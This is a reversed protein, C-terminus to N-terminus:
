RNARFDRRLDYSWGPQWQWESLISEALPVERLLHELAYYTARHAVILVPGSYERAIDELLTAVRGTVDEYSEGGPFPHRIRASRQPELESTAHRTLEGYNCERLRSDRIVPTRRDAFAIQATRFSRRLDSCIIVDLERTRYRDGLARAQSEGRPSLDVDYWGSALGAENDLSTAHTEFLVTM